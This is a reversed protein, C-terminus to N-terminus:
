KEKKHLSFKREEGRLLRVLNGRHMWIILGGILVALVMVFPDHSVFLWTGVPFAAAAYISGLSVYRTLLVLLLFGGWVLLALRWDILIALAGGSLIGKGGKFGFTVPFMHGLLCWLGSWYKALSIYDCYASLDVNMVSVLDLVSGEGKLTRLFSEMATSVDPGLVWGAPSLRASVFVGVLVAVIMKVVDLLLVVATLKGGFTRHFNTLGANGSGHTRIDDRLVYKSVIVAGNFCGCFYAIVAIVMARLCFEAM